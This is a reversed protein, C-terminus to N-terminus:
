FMRLQDGTGTNSKSVNCHHCLCQTNQRSHAGGKSIPQIHDLNPYKSHYRNKFDPRTKIGCLQCIYGDRKFVEIPNFDEITAGFKLARYKHQGKSNVKKGAETQNYAKAYETLKEKNKQYYKRCYEAHKKKNAEVCDKCVCSVGDLTKDSEYFEFFRKVTKCKLCKKSFSYGSALQCKLRKKSLNSKTM